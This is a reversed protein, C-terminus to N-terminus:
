KFLATVNNIIILTLRSCLMYRAFHTLLSQNLSETLLFVRSSACGASATSAGDSDVSLREAENLGFGESNLSKLGNEQDAAVLKFVDVDSHSYLTTTLGVLDESHSM